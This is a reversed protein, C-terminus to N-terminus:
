VLATAATTPTSSFSRGKALSSGQTGASSSAPSRCELVFRTRRPLAPHASKSSGFWTTCCTSGGPLTNGESWTACVEISANCGVRENRSHACLKPKYQFFTHKEFEGRIERLELLADVCELVCGVM